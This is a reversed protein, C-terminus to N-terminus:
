VRNHIINRLIYTDIIGLVFFKMLRIAPTTVTCRNCLSVMNSVVGKLSVTCEAMKAPHLRLPIAFYAMYISPRNPIETRGMMPSIKCAGTLTILAVYIHHLSIGNPRRSKRRSIYGRCWIRALVAMPRGTAHGM